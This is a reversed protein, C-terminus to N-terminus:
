ACERGCKAVFYCVNELRVARTHLPPEIVHGMRSAEASGLVRLWNVVGCHTKILTQEGTTSKARGVTAHNAFRQLRREM